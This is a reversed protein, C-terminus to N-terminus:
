QESVCTTSDGASYGAHKNYVMPFVVCIVATGVLVHHYAICQTLYIEKLKACTQVVVCKM